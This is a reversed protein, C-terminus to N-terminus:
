LLYPLVSMLKKSIPVVVNYVKESKLMLLNIISIKPCSKVKNANEDIPNKLANLQGALDNYGQQLKEIQEYQAKVTNELEKLASDDQQVPRTFNAFQASLDNLSKDLANFSNELRFNTILGARM